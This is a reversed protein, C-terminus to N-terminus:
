GQMLLPAHGKSVINMLSYLENKGRGIKTCFQDLGKTLIFYYYFFCVIIVIPFTYVYIRYYAVYYPFLEDPLVTRQVMSCQTCCTCLIRIYLVVRICNCLVLPIEETPCTNFNLQKIPQPVITYM